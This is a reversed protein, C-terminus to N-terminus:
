KVNRLSAVIEWPREGQGMSVETKLNNDQPVGLWSDLVLVSTVEEMCGETVESSM